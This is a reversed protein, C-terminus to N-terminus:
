KAAPIYSLDPRYAWIESKVCHITNKFVNMLVEAEQRGFAKELMAEFTLEPPESEAWNKRQLILVYTPHEGGSALEWWTHPVGWNTKEIAEHVKREAHLFEAEAGINLHFWLTESFPAPTEGALPRSIEPLYVYFAGSRSEVFAALNAEYDAADAAAFKAKDDFDKWHHGVTAAVRWGLREGAVCEFVSWTWTDKQQRHWDIHRKGAQEFQQRIGMKPKVYFVQAVTGPQDQAVLPLAFFSLLAITSLFCTKRM